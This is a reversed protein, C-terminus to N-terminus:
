YNISLCDVEGGYATNELGKTHGKPVAYACIEM